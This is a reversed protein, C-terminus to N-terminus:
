MWWLACVLILVACAAIDMARGVKKGRIVLEEEMGHQLSIIEGALFLVGGVLLVAVYSLMNGLHGLGYSLKLDVACDSITAFFVIVRIFDIILNFVTLPISNRGKHWGFWLDQAVAKVIFVITLVLCLNTITATHPTLLTVLLILVLAAVDLITWIKAM